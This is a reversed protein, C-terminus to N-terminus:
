SILKILKDLNKNSTLGIKYQSVENLYTKRFTPWTEKNKKIKSSRRSFIEENNSLKKPGSKSAKMKPINKLLESFLIPYM